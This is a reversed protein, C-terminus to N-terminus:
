PKQRLEKTEASLRILKIYPVALLNLDQLCTYPPFFMFFLVLIAKANSSDSINNTAAQAGLSGTSVSGGPPVSGPM